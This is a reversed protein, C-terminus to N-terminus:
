RPRTSRRREVTERAIRFGRAQYNPLAAEGDLDCTSVTVPRGDALEVAREIARTLLAGGLGRGRFPALLGFTILEVADDKPLLEAYGGPTGEDLVIWLEVREAWAQWRAADWGSKDSWDFDKGIEDYFLKNLPGFPVRAHEVHAQGRSPRLEELELYWVKTDVLVPEPV